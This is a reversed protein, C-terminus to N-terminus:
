AQSERLEQAITEIAHVLTEMSANEQALQNVEQGAEQLSEARLAETLNNLENELPPM